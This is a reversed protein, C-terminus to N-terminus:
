KKTRGFWFLYIAGVLMLFIGTYVVPLWPDRVLEIVSSDSWKGLEDDYSLQYIKWEGWTYPQNVEIYFHSQDGNPLLLDIESKYNKPEPFLMIMSHTEDLKLSEYQSNFSGCTIWGVITDSAGSIAQVQVAPPAGIDRMFYYQQGAKGASEYYNLIQVEWNMLQFTPEGELVRLNKGQEHLLTGNTNDVIGLKPPYEDLMFDTLRFAFPMLYVKGTSRDTAQYSTEGESLNMELRTVDFSGMSAAFIVLWLGIHSILIGLDKLKFNAVKDIILIGLASIMYLSSFLYYWSSTVKSFALRAQWGDANPNQLFLGMLLANFGLFVLASIAAPVSKLFKIANSKKFLLYSIILILVYGLGLILNQPFILKPLSSFGNTWEIGIGALFLGLVILFGEPYSWNKQWLGKPENNDKHQSLNM